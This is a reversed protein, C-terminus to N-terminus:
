GLTEASTTTTADPQEGPADPRTQGAASGQASPRAMLRRARAFLREVPDDADADDDDAGGAAAGTRSLVPLPDFGAWAPVSSMVTAVLVGGRLLWLVYGVSLGGSVLATGGITVTADLQRRGAEDKLHDLAQALSSRSFDTATESARSTSQSSEGLLALLTQLMSDASAALPTERSSPGATAVAPPVVVASPADSVRSTSASPSDLASAADFTLADDRPAVRAATARSAGQPDAASSAQAAPAFAEPVAV